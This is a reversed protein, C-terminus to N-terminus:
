EASNTKIMIYVSLKIFRQLIAASVLAWSAFYTIESAFDAVNQICINFSLSAPINKHHNINVISHKCSVTFHIDM